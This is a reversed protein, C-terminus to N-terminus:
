GDVYDGQKRHLKSEYRQKKYSVVSRLKDFLAKSHVDISAGVSLASTRTCLEKSRIRGFIQFTSVIDSCIGVVM